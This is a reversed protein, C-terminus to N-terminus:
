NCFVYLTSFKDIKALVFYPSNSKGSISLIYLLESGKPYRREPSFQIIKQMYNIYLFSTKIPFNKNYICKCNAHCKCTTEIIQQLFTIATINGIKDKVLVHLQIALQIFIIYIGYYFYSFPIDDFCKLHNQGM